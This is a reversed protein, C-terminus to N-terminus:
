THRPPPPTGESEGCLCFCCPCPNACLCGGCSRGGGKADAITVLPLAALSDLAEDVYTVDDFPLDSLDLRHRVPVDNRSVM